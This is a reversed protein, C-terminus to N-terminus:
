KQYSSLQKIEVSMEFRYGWVDITQAGYKRM